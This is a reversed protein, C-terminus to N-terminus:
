GGDDHPQAPANGRKDAFAQLQGEDVGDCTLQATAIKAQVPPADATTTPVVVSATQSGSWAKLREKAEAPANAPYTVVIANDAALLHELDAASPAGADEPAYFNESPHAYSEGPKPTYAVEDCTINAPTPAASPTATPTAKASAGGDDSDGCGALLLALILAARRISRM